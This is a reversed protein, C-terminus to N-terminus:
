KLEELKHSLGHTNAVSFLNHYYINAYDERLSYNWIGNQIALLAFYREKKEDRAVRAVLAARAFFCFRNDSFGDEYVKELEGGLNEESLLRNRYIDNNKDLQRKLLEYAFEYNGLSVAIFAGSAYDALKRNRYVYKILNQFALARNFAPAKALNEEEM